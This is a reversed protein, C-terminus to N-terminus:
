RSLDKAEKIDIRMAYGHKSLLHLLNAGNLLILPKDKAFEHSDRGYNSTTVLIGRSAGENIVTGYLDRVASVDVTNTYRKAQIIFKGGRLTDPDFVVADVGRDRSAQTVKVEGGNSAFEKEFLDRILHEFDQWEMTALNTDRGTTNLVDKAAIFRKDDKNFRILPQIPVLEWLKAAAVGKLKRFCAEPEVRELRIGELDERRAVVSMIVDRRRQGTAPDDYVVFGNCCVMGVRHRYDIQPIGWMLRLVLLYPFQTTFDRVERQNASALQAGASLTKTKMIAVNGFYPLQCEILLIGDDENFQLECDRPCWAPLPISNLEATFYETPSEQEYRSRLEQLKARDAAINEEWQSKGNQWHAVCIGSAAEFTAKKNKFYLERDALLRVLWANYAQAHQRRLRLEASLYEYWRLDASKPELAKIRAPFTKPVPRPVPYETLREARETLRLQQANEMSSRFYGYDALNVPGAPVDFQLPEFLSGVRYEQSPAPQLPDPLTVTQELAEKKWATLFDPPASKAEAGQRAWSSSGRSRLNLLESFWQQEVKEVAVNLEEATRATVRRRRQTPHDEVFAERPADGRVDMESLVASTVITGDLIALKDGFGRRLCQACRIRGRPAAARSLSVVSGSGLLCM